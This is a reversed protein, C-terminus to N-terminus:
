CFDVRKRGSLFHSVRMIIRRLCLVSFHFSRERWNKGYSRTHGRESIGFDSEVQGAGSGDFLRRQICLAPAMQYIRFARANGYLPNFLAVDIPCKMPTSHQLAKEAGQRSIIYAATGAHHSRLRYIGRGEVTKCPRQAISLRKRWTELKIIDVDEPVWALHKLIAGSGEGLVVDDELIIAHPEQSTLLKKWAAVHSVYCAVEEPSMEFGGAAPYRCLSDAATKPMLKGDCAQIRQFKLRQLELNEQIKTLRDQQRDLNIVMLMSISRVYIKQNIRNLNK